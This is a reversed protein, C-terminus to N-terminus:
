RRAAFRGVLDRVSNTFTFPQTEPLCQPPTELWSEVVYQDPKGGVLAYDAAQQMTEVYWTNDGALNKAKLAPYGSAWYILSFPLSRAHCFDELRRVEIWSGQSAISFAVWDVDLRYFDLPRVNLAKLKFNLLDIWHEQDALPISPYGEIDGILVNPYNKRVLAIYKATEQAAYDDSLKLRFRVCILPEDLALAYFNAGLRQLRHWIPQEADFTKQGTTGWEKVAGVELGMKMNWANLKGFWAHLDDDTFQKNYNLDTYGIVDVLKRTEAWQDPHQMLDRINQGNGSGNPMMWVEPRAQMGQAFVPAVMLTLLAAFVM